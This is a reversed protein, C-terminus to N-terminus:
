WRGPDKQPGGSTASSQPSVTPVDEQVLVVQQEDFSEAEITAGDKLEQPKITIRACGYMWETRAIAIGTFGTITDRVKSGLQIAM